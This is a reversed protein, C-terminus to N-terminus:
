HTQVSEVLRPEPASAASADRAEHEAPLEGLRVLAAHAALMETTFRSTALGRDYAARYAAIARERQSAELVAGARYSAAITWEADGFAAVDDLIAVAAAPVPELEGQLYRAEAGSRDSARQRSPLSKWRAIATALEARARALEGATRAA